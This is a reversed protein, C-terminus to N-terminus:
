IGKTSLEEKEFPLGNEKIIEELCEMEEFPLLQLIHELATKVNINPEPILKNFYSDTYGLTLICVKMISAIDYLVDTFGTVMFETKYLSETEGPRLKYQKKHILNSIKAMILDDKKPPGHITETKITYDAKNDNGNIRRTCHNLHMNYLSEIDKIFEDFESRMLRVQLENIEYEDGYRAVSYTHELLLLLENNDTKTVKSFPKLTPFFPECYKIHSIISHTTKSKGLCIQEIFRFSLEFAQHLNFAAIVLQRESILEDAAKVFANVKKMETNYYRVARKLLTNLALNKYDLIIEGGSHAFLTFGLCCHELFYLSGRELAKESTAETYIRIKFEPYEKEIKTILNIVENPIPDINADVLATIFYYPNEGKNQLESLFIIDLTLINLMSDLLTSLREAMEFNEPINIYNNM